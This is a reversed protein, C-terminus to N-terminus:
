LFQLLVTSRSLMLMCPLCRRPMQLRGAQTQSQLVHLCGPQGEADHCPCSNSCSALM